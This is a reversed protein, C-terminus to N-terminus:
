NLDSNINGEPISPLITVGNFLGLTEARKVIKQGEAFLKDDSQIAHVIKGILEIREVPSLCMFKECNM